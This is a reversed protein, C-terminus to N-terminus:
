LYSIVSRIMGPGNNMVIIHIMIGPMSVIVFVFGNEDKMDWNLILLIICCHWSEERLFTNRNMLSLFLDKVPLMIIASLSHRQKLMIPIAEERNLYLMYKKSLQSVPYSVLIM